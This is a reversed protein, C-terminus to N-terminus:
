SRCKCQLVELTCIDAIATMTAAPRDQKRVTVVYLIIAKPQRFSHHSFGILLSVRCLIDSVQKFFHEEGDENLPRWPPPANDWRDCIDLGAM